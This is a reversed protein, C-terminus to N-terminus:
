LLFLPLSLFLVLWPCSGVGLLLVEWCPAVLVITVFIGWPFYYHGFVGLFFCGGFWNGKHMIRHIHDNYGGSGESQQNYVSSFFWSCAFVGWVVLERMFAVLNDALGFV